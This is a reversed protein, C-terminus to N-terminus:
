TDDPRADCIRALLWALSAAAVTGAFGPQPAVVLYAGSAIWPATSTTSFLRRLIGQRRQGETPYYLRDMSLRRALPRMFWANVLYAAVGIGALGAIAVDGVQTRPAGGWTIASASMGHWISKKSSCL